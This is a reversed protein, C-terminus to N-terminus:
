NQRSTRARIKVLQNKVLEANAPSLKLSSADVFCKEAENFQNTRFLLEGLMLLCDADKPEIALCKRYAQISSDNDNLSALAVGFKRWAIPNNQNTKLYM